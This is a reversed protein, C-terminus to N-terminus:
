TITQAAILLLLFGLLLSSHSLSKEEPDAALWKIEGSYCSVNKSREMLEAPWHGHSNNLTLSVSPHHHHLGPSLFQHTGSYANPQVSANM